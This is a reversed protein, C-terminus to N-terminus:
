TKLIKEFSKATNLLIVGEKQCVEEFDSDLSLLYPIKYYKCTALILADNPKLSYRVILSFMEEEIYRNITLSEFSELLNKLEYPAVLKRKIYLHYIVESKVVTNIFFDFDIYNNLILQWIKAAEELGQKKLTEIFINSDIFFTKSM